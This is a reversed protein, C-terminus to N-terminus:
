SKDVQFHNKQNLEASIKAIKYMKQARVLASFFFFVHFDLVTGLVSRTKPESYLGPVGDPNSCSGIQRGFETTGSGMHLELCAHVSAPLELGLFVFDTSPALFFLFDTSGSCFKFAPSPSTFCSFDTSPLLFVSSEPSPPTKLGFDRYNQTM